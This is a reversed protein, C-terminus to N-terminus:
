QNEYKAAEQAFLVRNLLWKDSESQIVHIYIPESIETTTLNVKWIQSSDELTEADTLFTVTANLPKAQASKWLTPAYMQRFLDCGEMSMGACVRDEWAAQEGTVDPSYFAALAQMAPEEAAASTSDQVDKTFWRALLGNSYILYGATILTIALVVYALTQTAAKRSITVEM